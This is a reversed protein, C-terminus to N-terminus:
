ETVNFGVSVDVPGSASTAVTIVVELADKFAIINMDLNQFSSFIAIEWGHTELQEVLHCTANGASGAYEFIGMFDTLGFSSNAGRIDMYRVPTFDEPLFLENPWGAPYSTPDGEIPNKLEPSPSLGYMRDGFIAGETANIKRLDCSFDNPFQDYVNDPDLISTKEELFNGFVSNEKVSSIDAVDKTVQAVQQDALDTTKDDSGLRATLRELVGQDKSVFVILGACM